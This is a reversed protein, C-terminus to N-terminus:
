DIKKPTIGDKQMAELILTIHLIDKPRINSPDAVDVHDDINDCFNNIVQAIKLATNRDITIDQNLSELKQNLIFINEGGVIVETIIKQEQLKKLGAILKAKDTTEDESILFIDKFNKKVSLSDHNQFWKYLEVCTDLVTM